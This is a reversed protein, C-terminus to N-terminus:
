MKQRKELDLNSSKRHSCKQKLLFADVVPATVQWIWIKKTSGTLGSNPAVKSRIRSAALPCSQCSQKAELKKPFSPFYNPCCTSRKNWSSFKYITSFTCCFGTQKVCTKKQNMHLISTNLSRDKFNVFFGSDSAVLEARAKRKYGWCQTLFDHQFWTPLRIDRPPSLQNEIASVGNHQKKRSSSEDVSRSRSCLVVFM